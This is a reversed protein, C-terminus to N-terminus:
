LEVFGLKLAADIEESKVKIYVLWGDACICALCVTTGSPKVQKKYIEIPHVGESILYDKIISKESNNGWPNACQTENFFLQTYIMEESDNECCTFTFICFIILLLYILRNKIAKRM